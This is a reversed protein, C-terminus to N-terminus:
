ISLRQIIEAITKDLENTLVQCTGVGKHGGGGYEAMLQGINVTCPNFNNSGVQISV